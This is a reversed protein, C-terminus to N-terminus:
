GPAGEAAGAEAAKAEAATIADLHDCTRRWRANFCTCVWAQTKKDKQVLYGREPERSSLVLVYDRGDDGQGRIVVAGAVRLRNAARRSRAASNRVNMVQRQVQAHEAAPLAM